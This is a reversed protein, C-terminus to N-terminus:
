ILYTACVFVYILTFEKIKWSRKAVNFKSLGNNSGINLCIGKNLPRM